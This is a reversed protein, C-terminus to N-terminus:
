RFVANPLPPFDRAELYRDADCLMNTDEAGTYDRYVYIAILKLYADHLESAPSFAREARALLDKSENVTLQLALCICVLTDVSVNHNNRNVIKNVQSQSLRACEALRSQSWNKRKLYYEIYEKFSATKSPKKCKPQPAM